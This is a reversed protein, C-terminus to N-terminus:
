GELVLAARELAVRNRPYRLLGLAEALPCWRFETHERASLRPDGDGAEAVFVEEPVSDVGPAYLM